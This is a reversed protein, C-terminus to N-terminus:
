TRPHFTTIVHHLTAYRSRSRARYRPPLDRSPTQSQSKPWYQHMISSVDFKQLTEPACKDQATIDITPKPHVPISMGRGSILPLHSTLLTNEHTWTLLHPPPPLYPVSQISHSYPDHWTCLTHLPLLSTSLFPVSGMDPIHPKRSTDSSRFRNPMLFVLNQIKELGTDQSATTLKLFNSVEVKLIQFWFRMENCDQRITIQQLQDNYFIRADRPWEPVRWLAGVPNDCSNRSVGTTPIPTM